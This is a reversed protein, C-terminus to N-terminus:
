LVKCAEAFPLRPPRPGLSAPDGHGVGCIFNSKIQTGAFFEKDVGANDFGSMPACDLGLARAALIFYGGQLTGNRMAFTENNAAPANKFMDKAGPIKPFLKPMNEWFALDNAVIAVAPATMSKAVNSEALHPKLREKSEKSVLFLIRAPSGNMSTPGAATLEYVAQLMAASVPQDLWGNFSRAKWFLIDLASDSITATV